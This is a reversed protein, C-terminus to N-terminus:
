RSTVLSSAVRKGTTSSTAVVLAFHVEVLDERLEADGLLDLGIVSWRERTVLEGLKIFTVVYFVTTDRWQMRLGVSLALIEHTVDVFDYSVREVTAVIETQFEVREQATISRCWM